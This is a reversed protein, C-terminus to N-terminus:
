IGGEEEEDEEETEDGEEFEEDDTGIDRISEESGGRVEDDDGINRPAADMEPIGENGQLPQDDASQRNAM